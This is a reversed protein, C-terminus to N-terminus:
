KSRVGLASRKNSRKSKPNPPSIDRGAEKSPCGVVNHNPTHKLAPAYEHKSQPPNEEGGGLEQVEIMVNLKSKNVGAPPPRTWDGEGGNKPSWLQNKGKLMVTDKYTVQM